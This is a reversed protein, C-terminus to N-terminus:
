GPRYPSGPDPVEEQNDALELPPMDSPPTAFRFRYPNSSVQRRIAVPHNEDVQVSPSSLPPSFVSSVALRAHHEAELTRLRAKQLKLFNLIEKKFHSEQESPRSLLLIYLELLTFKCVRLPHNICYSRNGYDDAGWIRPANEILEKISARDIYRVDEPRLKVPDNLIFGTCMCTYESPVDVEAQEMNALRSNIRDLRQTCVTTFPSRESDRPQIGLERIGQMWLREEYRDTVLIFGNENAIHYIQRVLEDVETLFEKLDETEYASRDIWLHCEDRFLRAFDFLEQLDYTNALLTRQLISAIPTLEINITHSAANIIDNMMQLMKQRMMENPEPEDNTASLIHVYSNDRVGRLQTDHHQAVQEARRHHYASQQTDRTSTDRHQTHEDRVPQHTRHHQQSENLRDRRAHNDDQLRDGRRETDRDRNIRHPQHARPQRYGRERQDQEQAEERRNYNRRPATFRVRNPRNM